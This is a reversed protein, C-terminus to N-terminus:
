YKVWKWKFPKECLGTKFCLCLVVGFHDILAINRNKDGKRISVGALSLNWVSPTEPPKTSLFVDLHDESFIQSLVAPSNRTYDIPFNYFSSLFVVLFRYQQTTRSLRSLIWSAFQQHEPGKTPELFLRVPSGQVCSCQLVNDMCIRILMHYSNYLLFRSVDCSTCTHIVFAFARPKEFM